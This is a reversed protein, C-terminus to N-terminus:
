RRDRRRADRAHQDPANGGDVRAGVAGHGTGQVVIQLGRESAYTVADVVEDVTTPLVVVAPRLDAALNWAQRADDWRSDDPFVFHNHSKVSM